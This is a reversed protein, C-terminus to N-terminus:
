IDGHNSGLLGQSVGSLSSLNNMNNMGNNNMGNNMANLNGMNGLNGLNGLNMGGLGGLYNMGQMGGFQGMASHQQMVNQQQQKFTIDRSLLQNQYTVQSLLEKYLSIQQILCLISQQEETQLPMRGLELM